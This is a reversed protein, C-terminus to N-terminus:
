AWMALIGGMILLSVLQYGNNLAYLGTPRNEYLVSAITVTAVFGLWVWFGVAAGAGFTKAGAWDVIRSLVFATVLAAVFSVGYIRPMASRDINEMKIGSLAMWQRGFLPGYWLFGLVMNIIAAVVIALYNM